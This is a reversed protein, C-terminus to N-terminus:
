QKEQQGTQSADGVATGILVMALVAFIYAQIIATLVDLAMFPIPVFLGALSLVIGVVFVGSLINGFLRVMMSFTRTLSEVINLPALLWTPEAFSKLYGGVGHARIGFVVAACFAILALAADTELHATAPENGPVLSSLNAFLIYLFITGVIALYPQPDVRMTARIQGGLVDVFWEALVQMRSPGEVSLRRTILWSGLGLVVM